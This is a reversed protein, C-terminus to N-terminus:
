GFLYVSYLTGCYIAAAAYPAGAYMWAVRKRNLRRSEVVCLICSILWILPVLAESCLLIVVRIEDARTTRPSDLMMITATMIAPWLWLLLVASVVFTVTKM